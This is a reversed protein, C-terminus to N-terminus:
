HLDRPRPPEPLECAPREFAKKKVGLRPGLWAALREADPPGLFPLPDPNGGAIVFLAPVGRLRIGYHELKPEEREISVSLVEIPPIKLSKIASWVTRKWRPIPRSDLLRESFAHILLTPHSPAISADDGTARSTLADLLEDMNVTRFIEPATTAMKPSRKV